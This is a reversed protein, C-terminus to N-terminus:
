YIIKRLCSLRINNGSQAADIGFADALVAASLFCLLIKESPTGAYQNVSCRMAQLATILYKGANPHKKKQLVIERLQGFPATERCNRCICNRKVAHDSNATEPNGDLCEEL